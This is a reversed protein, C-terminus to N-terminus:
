AAELMGILLGLDTGIPGPPLTRKRAADIAQEYTLGVAQAEVAILRRFQERTLPRGSEMAKLIDAPLEPM